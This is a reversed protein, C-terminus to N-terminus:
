KVTDGENLRNDKVFCSMQIAARRDTLRHSHPRCTAFGAGNMKPQQGMDFIEDRYQCLNKKSSVTLPEYGRAVASVIGGLCGKRIM